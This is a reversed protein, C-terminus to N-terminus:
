SCDDLIDLADEVTELAYNCGGQSYAVAEGVVYIGKRPNRIEYFDVEEGPTYFHVGEKWFAVYLDKIKIKEDISAADAATIARNLYKEAIAIKQAKKNVGELESNILEADSGDTYAIMWVNDKMPIIIHVKDGVVTIKPFLKKMIATYKPTFEAYIRMFPHSQVRNYIPMPLLSRITSITSAIVVNKSKFEGKNTVVTFNPHKGKISLVDHSLLYNCDKSMKNILDTWNLSIAIYKSCNEILGYNYLTTRADADHFDTYGNDHIYIEIEEKTLVKNMFDMFSMGDAILRSNDYLKMLIKQCRESFVDMYFTHYPLDVDNMLQILLDDSDAVGIGAGLSIGVNKSGFKIDHTRGGLRDAKELLLSTGECKMAFYLGAIGGGVIIFDYM